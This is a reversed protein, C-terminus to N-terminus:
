QVIMGNCGKPPENDGQLFTQYKIFMKYNWDAVDKRYTMNSDITYYKYPIRCLIDNGNVDQELSRIICISRMM